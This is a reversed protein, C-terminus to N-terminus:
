PDRLALAALRLIADPGVVAIRRSRRDSTSLRRPNPSAASRDARSVANGWRRPVVEGARPAAILKILEARVRERLLRALGERARIAASLGERDLGTRPSGPRSGSSGCFACIIRM